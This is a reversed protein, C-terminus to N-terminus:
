RCEMFFLALVQNLADIKLGHTSCFYVIGPNSLSPTEKSTYGVIGVPEGGVSLIKYPL